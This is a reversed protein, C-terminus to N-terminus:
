NFTMYQVTCHMPTRTYDLCLNIQQRLSSSSSSSPVRNSTLLAAALLERPLLLPAVCAPALDESAADAERLVSEGRVCVARDDSAGAERLVSEGRSRARLLFLSSSSRIFNM